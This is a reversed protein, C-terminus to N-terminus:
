KKKWWNLPSAKRDIVPQLLYKDLEQVSTLENRDNETIKKNTNSNNTIESFVDWVSACDEGKTINSNESSSYHTISEDDNGNESSKFIESEKM